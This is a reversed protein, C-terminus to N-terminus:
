SLLGSTCLSHAAQTHRTSVVYQNNRTERRQSRRRMKKGRLAAINM